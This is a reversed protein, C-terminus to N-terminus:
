SRSCPPRCSGGSRAGRDLAHADGGAYSAALAALPIGGAPLVALLDLAQLVIATREGSAGEWRRRFQDLM